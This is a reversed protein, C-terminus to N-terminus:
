NADVNAAVVKFVEVAGIIALLRLSGRGGLAFASLSYRRPM